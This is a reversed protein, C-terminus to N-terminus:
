GRIIDRLPEKVMNWTNTLESLRIIGSRSFVYVSTNSFPNNDHAANPLETKGGFTRGLVSLEHLVIAALGHTESRRGVVPFRVFHPVYNAYLSPLLFPGEEKGWALGLM